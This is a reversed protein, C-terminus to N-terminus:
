FNDRVIQTYYTYGLHFSGICMTLIIIKEVDNLTQQLFLNLWRAMKGNYFGNKGGIRGIRWSRM